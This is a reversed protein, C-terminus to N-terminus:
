YYVKKLYLGEPNAIKGARTRDESEFLEKINYKKGEGIEILLGVMNRVMYRLFGTGLFSIIVIDKNVKINAKFITRVFDKDTSTGKCFTKFNNTGEFYKINKRMEEVDLSKNYQYIYDKELPNYEGINIKYIYLKKKVDFRAHFDNNKAEIKKIYIDKPLMQNLSKKLKEENIKVDLDFHASQNLAHVKRDTRGSAVVGTKKNNIKSLVKEIEEQISRERKQKQYGSYNSGDYSFTMLYRM